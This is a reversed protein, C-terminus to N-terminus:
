VVETADAHPIWLALCDPMVAAPALGELDGRNLQYTGKPARRRGLTILASLNGYGARNCALLVYYSRIAYM